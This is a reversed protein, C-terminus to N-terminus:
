FSRRRGSADYFEGMKSRFQWGGAHRCNCWAEVFISLEYSSSIHELHYVVMEKVEWEADYRQCLFQLLELLKPAGLHPRIRHKKVHDDDIWLSLRNHMRATSDKIKALSELVKHMMQLPSQLRLFMQQIRKETSRLERPKDMNNLQNETAFIRTNVTSIQKMTERGRQILKQWQEAEKWVNTAMTEIEIKVRALNM